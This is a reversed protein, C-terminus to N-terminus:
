EKAGADATEQRKIKNLAGAIRLREAEPLYDIFLKGDLHDFEHQFVRAFFGDIWGSQENWELDRFRVKIKIPRWVEGEVNPISLCGENYEEDQITSELIEPNIMVQLNRRAPNKRRPRSRAPSDVQDVDLVFFRRSDGIQPAALGVGNAAYMTEGMDAILRHFDENIEGQELARARERLVPDGYLVIPLEAM